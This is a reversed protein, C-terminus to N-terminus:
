KKPKKVSLETGITVCSVQVISCIVISFASSTMTMDVFQTCHVTRSYFKNWLPLKLYTGLSHLFFSSENAKAFIPHKKPKLKKEYQVSDKPKINGICSTVIKHGMMNYKIYNKSINLLFTWFNCFVTNKQLIRNKAM